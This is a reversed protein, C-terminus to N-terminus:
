EEPESDDKLEFCLMTLDDFQPADGVFDRVDKQIGEIIEDPSGDKLKNLSDLMRDIGYMQNDKDSAEPLGDTYLFIRDGKNLTTEHDRFKIGNMGGLVFGHKTKEIEFEGNKRCIVPDEHGANSSILRGTPIELIGLWVTVFMDAKNYEYINDNVFSLVQSPSGGMKARDSILINSVMMFLSAPVGKGSVDAIVLALHDDDILFANYFDGGVEKAPNMSACIEFEDRDSFAKSVDPLSTEQITAAISLEAVIRERESTIATLNEIHTIMDTKMSDISRALNLIVEYRSLEGLPDGKSNEKAFRSAEASVKEVPKIIARNLFAAAMLSIVVGMIFVGLLILLYYPRFANEMERIPRQMCLIGSVEGSSDKVPVLTTIHPHQGDTTNMRFVTGYDTKQEYIEKYTKRYKNNTTDRKHGLEWETYSSDDVSNNVCNFVSVFRGYDSRDVVIVYILSVNLKQCCTDLQRKSKQYEEQEKGDLYEDLHDGNVFIASSDAMHYTVTSYENKFADIFCLNGILSVVIGFLMILAVLGGIVNASMNSRIKKFFKM